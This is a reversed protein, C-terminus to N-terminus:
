APRSADGLVHIVTDILELMDNTSLQAGLRKAEARFEPTDSGAFILFPVANGDARIKALLDYGATMDSGRGMDSIVLDYRRERMAKLGAETSTVQDVVLQLRTLARVALTNNTPNDDVWLVLNGTLRNAVDTEFARGITERVRAVDVGKGSGKSRWDRAAAAAATVAEQTQLAIRIPGVVVGQIANRRWATFVVVAGLTWGLLNVVSSLANAADFYAKNDRIFALAAEVM